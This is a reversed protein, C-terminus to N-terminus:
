AQRHKANMERMEMLYHPVPKKNRRENQNLVGDTSFGERLNRTESFIEDLPVNRIPKLSQHNRAFNRM